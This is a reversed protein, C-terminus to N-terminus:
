RRASAWEPPRAGGLIDPMAYNGEHCAYEYIPGPTALFPYEATIPKTFSEPDNRKRRSNLGKQTSELPGPCSLGSHTFILSSAHGAFLFYAQNLLVDLRSRFQGLREPFKM